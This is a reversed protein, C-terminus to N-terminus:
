AASLVDDTLKHILKEVTTTINLISGPVNDFSDSYVIAVTTEVPVTTSIAQTAAISRKGTDLTLAVDYYYGATAPKVFGEEKIFELCQQLGRVIEGQRYIPVSTGYMIAINGAGVDAFTAIPKVVMDINRVNYGSIIGNSM